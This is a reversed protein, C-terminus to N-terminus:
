SFHRFGAMKCEIQLTQKVKNMDGGFRNENPLSYLDIQYDCESTWKDIENEWNLLVNVPLMILVREIKTEEQNALLTHILTVVQLTKGLGMCHALICGSGKEGKAIMEVNEFCRLINLDYEFINNSAEM